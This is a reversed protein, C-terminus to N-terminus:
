RTRLVKRYFDPSRVGTVTELAVRAAETVDEVYESFAFIRVNYSYSTYAQTWKDVPFIHKLELNEDEAGSAVEDIDVFKPPKPVDLWAGAIDLAGVATEGFKKKDRAVLENGMVSEVKAILDSRLARNQLNSLFDNIPIRDAHSAVSSNIRMVERPALRNVLRYAYGSVVPDTDGLFVHSRLHADTLDLYRCLIALDRAEPDAKWNRQAKALMREFLGEIARVKTHHYLYSFLMMKCIVIQEIANLASRPLCLRYTEYYDYPISESPELRKAKGPAVAEYLTKLQDEGDGLESRKIHVAHLYRDLDYRLPLGAGTADRLLYDLKDADFASSVIDGLFQLYPHWARGVILLSVHDLSIEGIWEDAAPRGLLKKKGRDILERVSRTQALCFSIVEGSGKEKGAIRTLEGSAEDLLPLKSYIKESAHSFLSHGTDHLLAALRIEQRLRKISDEVGIQDYLTPLFTQLDGTNNAVCADFTRSALTLVGLSHEFRQHHACPYVEFALGVQHIDKLRQMIPSDILLWELWSFKNTGWLNDHVVKNRKIRLVPHTAADGFYTPHKTRLYEDFAQTIEFLKPYNKLGIGGTM